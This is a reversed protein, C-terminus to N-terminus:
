GPFVSLHLFFRSDDCLWDHYLQYANYRQGRLYTKGQYTFEEVEQTPVAYNVEFSKHDQTYLFRGTIDALSNNPANPCFDDSQVYGYYLQNIFDYDSKSIISGYRKLIWYLQIHAQWDSWMWAHVYCPYTSGDWVWLTGWQRIINHIIDNVPKVVGDADGWKFTAGNIRGTKIAELWAWIRESLYYQSSGYTDLYLQKHQNYVTNQALLAATGLVWIVMIRKRKMM